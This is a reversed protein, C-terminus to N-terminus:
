KSLPLSDQSNIWENVFPEINSQYGYHRAFKEAEIYQIGFEASGFGKERNFIGEHEALMNKLHEVCIPLQTNLKRNENHVISNKLVEELLKNVQNRRAELQQLTVRLDDQCEGLNKLLLDRDQILRQYENGSLPINVEKIQKLTEMSLLPTLHAELDQPKKYEM